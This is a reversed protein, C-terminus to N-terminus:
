QSAGFPASDNTPSVRQPLPGCSTRTRGVLARASGTERSRTRKRQPCWRRAGEHGHRSAAGKGKRASGAAGILSGADPQCGPFEGLSRPGRRRVPTLPPVIAYGFLLRGSPRPRAVAVAVIRHGWALGSRPVVCSRMRSHAHRRSAPERAAAEGRIRDEAARATGLRAYGHWPSYLIPAAFLDSGSRASGSM